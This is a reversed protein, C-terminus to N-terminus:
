ARGWARDQKKIRSGNQGSETYHVQSINFNLSAHVQMLPLSLFHTLTYSLSLTHTITHMYAGRTPTFPGPTLSGSSGPRVDSCLTSPSGPTREM